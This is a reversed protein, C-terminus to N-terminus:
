RKILIQAMRESMASQQLTRNAKPDSAYLATLYAADAETLGRPADRDPCGAPALLDIISAFSLCGDLSRPQSLALMAVYDALTSADHDKVRGVDVVVLVNWFV